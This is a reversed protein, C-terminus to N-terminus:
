LVLQETSKTHEPIRVGTNGGSETQLDVPINKHFAGCTFDPVMISNSRNSVSWESLPAVSSWLAADYVDQDLPLGNRLCDILRWDMIFDMGGHGGIEKAVEGVRKMIEPTYQSTIQELEEKDLWHHGLAIREPEPWKRAMGLTGSILHIRSYPRPSSTDHQLMMTKGNATRILTSNMNGRYTRTAFKEFFPDEAALQEAMPAMQFDFTSMSTLYEMKDGRNISLAQCVPGLGHTPYLNGNRHRNEELRWMDSYANKSFNLSILDHIYAGEVHTIEGFFGERVLRLTLLEFFDYCCNELMMCHRKTKESTEVLLWADELTTAAPVEVAAHKGNEMAEVAMPTHLSWPTCIYVLDIDRNQCLEMWADESGSYARARSLGHSELIGQAKQVRDAQKDCLARIEVGELYCMREVAGPGRMGLGIIGVGVTEIRPAKFGSMNFLQSHAKESEEKIYSLPHDGHGYTVPNCASFGGSLLGASGASFMKFFSRRNTKM